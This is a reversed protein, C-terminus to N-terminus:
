PNEKLLQKFPEELFLLDQRGELRKVETGDGSFYIFTPTGKVGMQRALASGGASKIDVVIVEARGQYTQELQAM